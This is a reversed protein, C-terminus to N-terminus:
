QCRRHESRAHGWELLTLMCCDGHGDTKQALEATYTDVNIRRLHHNLHVLDNYSCSLFHKARIPPSPGHNKLRSQTATHIMRNIWFQLLSVEYTPCGPNKPTCLYAAKNGDGAMVDVQYHICEWCMTAIIEGCLAAARSIHDQGVHYMCVRHMSMRGRTLKEEEGTQRNLTTGWLNSSQGHFLDPGHTM